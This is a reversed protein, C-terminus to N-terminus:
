RETSLMSRTDLTHVKTSVHTLVYCSAEVNKWQQIDYSIWSFYVLQLISYIVAVGSSQTM